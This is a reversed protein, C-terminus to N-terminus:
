RRHGFTFMGTMMGLLGGLLGMVFIIPIMLWMLDIVDSMGTSADTALVGPLAFSAVALVGLLAAGIRGLRAM